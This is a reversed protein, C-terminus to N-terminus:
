PESTASPRTLSLFNIEKLTEKPLMRKKIGSAPNATIQHANQVLWNFFECVCSKHNRKTRPKLDPLEKLYTLIEQRTITDPYRAGFDAKIFADCRYKLDKYHRSKGHLLEVDKLFADYLEKLKRASTEPHLLRWFKGLEILPM